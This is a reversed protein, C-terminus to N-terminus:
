SVATPINADINAYFFYLPNKEIAKSLLREYALAMGAYGICSPHNSVRSYFTKSHFYPDDKPDICAFGYHDAIAQIATDLEKWIALYIPTKIM